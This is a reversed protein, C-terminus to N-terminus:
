VLEFLLEDIETGRANAFSHARGIETFGLTALLACSATNDAAVWARLPREAIADLLLRVARTAIGRGWADRDIWYALMATGDEHWVGIDGVIRGDARITRPSVEPDALLEAWHADFAARDHPHAPVFAAMRNADDDQRFRFLEDLDATRTARLTVVHPEGM